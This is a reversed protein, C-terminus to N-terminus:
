VRHKKFRLHCILYLAAIIACIVGVLFTSFVSSFHNDYMLMTSFSGIMVGLELAIFMTGAGVGRRLEHSLDATWAFLTPSSIGTAIGFIIASLLYMEKTKALGIFLMSGALSCVAILMTQRRGIKDSLGSAFLRILITSIVYIGFFIGKNEFHLFKSIEPTIVFIIGSCIATLLMVVAAPIVSPEIIDRWNIKLLSSHFREKKALTENVNKVLLLSIVTSLSASFFLFNFGFSKCILSGAAQGVGIGLSIFTGWIGMARGRQKEDLIDTLLATSGTPSFGASFGHLFRLLFFIWLSSALPYLLCVVIAIFTGIYIVKKRGIKDSLKGSFPRSIGASITFLMIILGKQNAGNLLTIYDNLEPLILNFGAMFFFMSFSLLWFQKGLKM